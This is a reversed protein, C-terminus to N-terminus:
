TKYRHEYSTNETRTEHLDTYPARVFLLAAGPTRDRQPSAVTASARVRPELDDIRTLLARQRLLPRVWHDSREASHRAPRAGPVEKKEAELVQRIPEHLMPQFLNRDRGLLAEISVVFAGGETRRDRCSNPAGGGSVSLM